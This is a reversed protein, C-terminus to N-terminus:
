KACPAVTFKPDETRLVVRIEDVCTVAVPVAVFACTPLIGIVTLLGFGPVATEPGIMACTFPALESTLTAGPLPLTRAPLVCSNVAVTVPIDFLPTLQDTLPIGPPFSVTPVM